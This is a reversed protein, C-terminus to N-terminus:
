KDTDTWCSNDWLSSLLQPSIQCSPSDHSGRTSSCPKTLHLPPMPQCILFHVFQFIVSMWGNMWKWSNIQTQGASCCDSSIDLSGEGLGGEGAWGSTQPSVLPSQYLCCLFMNWGAHGPDWGLRRGAPSVQFMEGLLCGPAMRILHRFCRLQSRETYLPVYEVQWEGIFSM